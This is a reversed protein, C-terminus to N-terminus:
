YDIGVFINKFLRLIGWLSFIVFLALLGWAIAKREAALGGADGAKYIYRVLSVMVLLLAIGGLIPVIIDILNVVEEILSKLNM